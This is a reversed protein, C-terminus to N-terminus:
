INYIVFNNNNIKTYVYESDYIKLYVHVLSYGKRIFTQLM